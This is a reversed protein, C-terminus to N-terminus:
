RHRCRRSHIATGIPRMHCPPSPSCGCLRAMCIRSSWAVLGLPYMAAMPRTHVRRSLSPWSGGPILRAPFRPVPDHTTVRPCSSADRGNSPQGDAIHSVADFHSLRGALTSIDQPTRAPPSRRVYLLEYGLDTPSVEWAGRSKRGPGLCAVLAPLYSVREIRVDWVGPGGLRAWIEERVPLIVPRPLAHYKEDRQTALRPLLISIHVPPNGMHTGQCSAGVAEQELGRSASKGM